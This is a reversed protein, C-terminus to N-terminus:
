KMVTVGIVYERSFNMKSFNNEYKGGPSLHGQNFIVEKKGQTKM